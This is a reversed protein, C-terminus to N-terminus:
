RYSTALSRALLATSASRCTNWISCSKSCASSFSNRAPCARSSASSCSARRQHAPRGPLPRAAHEGALLRQERHLLGVGRGILAGEAGADLEVVRLHLGREDGIRHGAFDHRGLVQEGIREVDGVDVIGFGPPANRLEKTEPM